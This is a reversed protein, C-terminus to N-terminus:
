HRSKDTLPHLWGKGMRYRLYQVERKGLLCKAPNATLGAKGLARVVTTVHTM